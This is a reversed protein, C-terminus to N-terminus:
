KPESSNKRSLREHLRAPPPGERWGGATPRSPLASRSPHRRYDEPEERRFHRGMRHTPLTVSCAALGWVGMEAVVVVDPNWEVVKEARMVPYAEPARGARRQRRRGPRDPRGSFIHRGGDDLLTVALRWSSGLVGGAFHRPTRQRSLKLNMRCGHLSAKPRGASDVAQRWDASDCRIAGRFQPNPCGTGSRRIPPVGRCGRRM